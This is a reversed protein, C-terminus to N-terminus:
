AGAGGVFPNVGSEGLDAAPEWVLRRYDLDRVALETLLWFMLVGPAFTRDINTAGGHGWEVRVWSRCSEPYPVVTVTVGPMTGVAGVGRGLWPCATTVHTAPM